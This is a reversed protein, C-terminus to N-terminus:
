PKIEGSRGRNLSRILQIAIVGIVVVGVLNPWIPCAPSDEILARRLGIDIMLYLAVAVAAALVATILRKTWEFNLQYAFVAFIAVVIAPIVYYDILAGAACGSAFASPAFVSLGTALHVQRFLPKSETGLTRM